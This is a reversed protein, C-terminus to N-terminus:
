GAPPAPPKMADVLGQIASKISTGLTTWIAATAAIVLGGVVAYEVSEMGEEERALRKVFTWVKEM